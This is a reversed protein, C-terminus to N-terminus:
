KGNNQEERMLYWFERLCEFARIDREYKESHDRYEPMGTVKDLRLVGHAEVIVEHPDSMSMHNWAQRYAATQLAYEPFHGKASKFDVLTPIGDKHCILDATGAYGTSYVTKEVYIPDIHHQNEWELYALFANEAADGTIKPEKGTKLYTEIAAHVATGIDAAERAVTRWAKRADQAVSIVAPKTVRRPLNLLMYD